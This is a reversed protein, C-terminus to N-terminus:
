KRFISIFYEKFRFTYRPITHPSGKWLTPISARQAFEATLLLMTPAITAIFLSVAFFSEDPTPRVFSGLEYITEVTVIIMTVLLALTVGKFQFRVAAWILCPFFMYFFHAQFQLNLWITFIIAAGLGLVEFITNKIPKQEHIHLWALLLPTMVFVGGTDGLWWIFSSYFYQSWPILGSICMALMGITANVVCSLAGLLLLKVMITPKLFAQSLSLYRRILLAGVYAQLAAGAGIIFGVSIIKLLSEDPFLSILQYINSLWSGLFIALTCQSGFILVAALAYGSAPWIPSVNTGMIALYLGLEALLFYILAILFIIVFTHSLPYQKLPQLLM